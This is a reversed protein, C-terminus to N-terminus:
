TFKFDIFDITVRRQGTRVSAYIRLPNAPRGHAFDFGGPLHM